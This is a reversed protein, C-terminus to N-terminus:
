CYFLTLFIYPEDIIVAYSHYNSLASYFIITNILYSRSPLRSGIIPLAHVVLCWLNIIHCKNSMVPSHMCGFWLLATYFHQPFSNYNFSFYLWPAFTNALHSPAELYIHIYHLHQLLLPMNEIVPVNQVSSKYIHLYLAYFVRYPSKNMQTLHYLQSNELQQLEIGRKVVTNTVIFELITSLYSFRNADNMYFDHFEDRWPFRTFDLPM